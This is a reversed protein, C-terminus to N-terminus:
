LATSPARCLTCGRPRNGCRMLIAEGKAAATVEGDILPAALLLHLRPETLHDLVQSSLSGSKSKPFVIVIREGREPLQLGPIPPPPM